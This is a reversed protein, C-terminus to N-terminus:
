LKAVIMVTLKRINDDGLPFSYGGDRIRVGLWADVEQKQLHGITSMEEISDYVTHSRTLPEKM